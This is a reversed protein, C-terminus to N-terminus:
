QFEFRLCNVTFMKTSFLYNIMFTSLPKFDVSGDIDLCMVDVVWCFACYLEFISRSAACGAEKIQEEQLEQQQESMQIVANPIPTFFSRQSKINSWLEDRIM